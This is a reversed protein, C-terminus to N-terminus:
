HADFASQLPVVGTHPALPVHRAPHVLEDCHVVAPLGTQSVVVLWHTAQRAFVSQVFVCPPTSPPVGVGYQWVNPPPPPTPPPPKPLWHTSHKAAMPSAPIWPHVAPWVHRLPVHRQRPKPSAVSAVALTAQTNRNLTTLLPPAANKPAMTTTSGHAQPPRELKSRESVAFSLGDLPPALEPIGPEEPEPELEPM